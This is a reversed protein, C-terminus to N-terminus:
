RPAGMIPSNAYQSIITSWYSFPVITGIPSVGIQFQGISSDPIETPAPPHPPGTPGPPLPVFVM